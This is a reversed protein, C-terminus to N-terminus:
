RKKAPAGKNEKPGRVMKDEPAPAMKETKEVPAEPSKKDARAQVVRGDVVSLGLRAAEAAPIECGAGCLLFSGRPDGAEVVTNNDSALLLRRDSVM